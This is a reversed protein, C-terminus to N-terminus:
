QMERVTPPWNNNSAAQLALNAPSKIDNDRNQPSSTIVYQM